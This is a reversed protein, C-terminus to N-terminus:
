YTDLSLDLKLSKHEPTHRSVLYTNCKQQGLQLLANIHAHVKNQTSRSTAPTHMQSSGM